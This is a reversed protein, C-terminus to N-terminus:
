MVKLAQVFDEPDVGPTIVGLDYFRKVVEQIDKISTGRLMDELSTISDEPFMFFDGSIHIDTIRDGDVDMTVRILGKKAKWNKSYRM